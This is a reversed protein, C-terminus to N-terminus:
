LELIHDLFPCYYMDILNLDLVSVEVFCLLCEEAVSALHRVSASSMGILKL